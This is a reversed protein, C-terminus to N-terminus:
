LIWQVYHFRRGHSGSASQIGKERRGALRLRRPLIHGLVLHPGALGASPPLGVGSGLHIRALKRVGM